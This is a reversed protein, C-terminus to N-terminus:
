FLGRGIEKRMRELEDNVNMKVIRYGICRFIDYFLCSNLWDFYRYRERRRRSLNVTRTGCSISSIHVSTVLCTVPTSRNV